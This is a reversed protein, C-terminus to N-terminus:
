GRRLSVGTLADFLHVRDHEVTVRIRSGPEPRMGPAGRAIISVGEVRQNLLLANLAAFEPIWTNGLQAVDPLAGGVYATLLKEHGATWPIAQVRVHTGPNAMEFERALPAIAEGEAGFAWVRLEGAGSRADANTCAVSCTAMSTYCLTRMLRRPRRVGM